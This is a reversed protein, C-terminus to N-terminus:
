GGAQKLTVSDPLNGFDWRTIGKRGWTEDAESTLAAEAQEGYQESLAQWDRSQAM